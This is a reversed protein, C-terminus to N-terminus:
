NSVMIAIYYRWNLPLDNKQNMLLDCNKYYIRFYEPFWIFLKEYTFIRGRRNALTTLIKLIIDSKFEYLHNENILLNENICYELNNLFSDEINIYEDKNPLIFAEPILKMNFFSVLVCNNEIASPDIKKINSSVNFQKYLIFKIM